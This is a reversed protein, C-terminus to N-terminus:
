IWKRMQLPGEFVATIDITFVVAWFHGDYLNEIDLAILLALWITSNIGCM